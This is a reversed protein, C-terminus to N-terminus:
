PRAATSTSNQNVCVPPRTTQPRPSASKKEEYVQQRLHSHMTGQRSGTASQVREKMTPVVMKQSTVKNTAPEKVFSSKTDGYPIVESTFLAKHIIKNLCSKMFFKDYIKSNKSPFIRVFEGRRNYENVTEALIDRFKLYCAQHLSDSLGAYDQSHEKCTREILNEVQPNEAFNQIWIENDGSKPLPISGAMATNIGYLKAKGIGNSTNQGINGTFAGANSRFKMKNASEKRRDFKRLGVMNLTDALLNTKIKLDLPSDTALSPSLNVELVWPKLESDILIDFGFVEFCNLRFMNNKRMASLVYSEGCALTKIIVDYIRSWMLDM